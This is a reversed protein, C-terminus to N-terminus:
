HWSGVARFTAFSLIGYLAAAAGAGVIWRVIVTVDRTRLRAAAPGVALYPIVLRIGYLFAHDPERNVVASLVTLGVYVALPLLLGRRGAWGHWSSPLLLVGALFLLVVDDWLGSGPILRVVVEHLAMGVLLLLLVFRLVSPTAISGGTVPPADGPLSATMSQSIKM